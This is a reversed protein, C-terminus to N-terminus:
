AAAPPARDRALRTLRLLPPVTAAALQRRVIETAVILRPASPKLARIAEPLTKLALALAAGAIAAFAVLQTWGGGLVAGHTLISVLIAQGGCAAWLGATAVIWLMAGPRRGSALKGVLGAIALAYAILILTGAAGFRGQGATELCSKVDPGCVFSVRAQDVGASLLPLLVLAKLMLPLRAILVRV